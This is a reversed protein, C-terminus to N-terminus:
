HCLLMTVVGTFPLAFRTALEMFICQLLLSGHDVMYLIFPVMTKFAGLPAIRNWGHLWCRLLTERHRNSTNLELM